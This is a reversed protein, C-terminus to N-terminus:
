GGLGASSAHVAPPPAAAPEAAGPPAEAAVVRGTVGHADPYLSFALWGAPPRAALFATPRQSLLAARYRNE